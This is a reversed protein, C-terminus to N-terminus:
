PICLLALKMNKREEQLYIQGSQSICVVCDGDTLSVIFM